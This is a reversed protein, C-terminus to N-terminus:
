PAYAPQKELRELGPDAKAKKQHHKQPRADGRAARILMWDVGAPASKVEAIVQYFARERM